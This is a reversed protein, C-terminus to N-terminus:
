TPKKMNKRADRKKNGEKRGPIGRNPIKGGSRKGKLDCFLLCTGYGVAGGLGNSFVDDLECYGTGTFDQILEILISLAIPVLLLAITPFIRYLIAGLPIFLWINKLIDARTKSNSIFIKYSWFLELNAGGEGSERFMLTMYSIAGIYVFLLIYNWKTDFFVALFVVILASVIVLWSENYLANKLNFVEKGAQNLYNTQGNERSIGYQGESLSYPNGELDFYLETAVSNDAQFTRRVTTYGKNTATPEGEADLYTLVAERGNEDYEKHIGYQGLSLSVPNGTEDFYFESEVKGNEPGETIYYNRTVIAYGQGTMMPAGAADIYTIRQIKGNEGYENIKGYGYLPTNVPNGKTDYYKVAVDQRNENYEREEIAYGNAMIMPEGNDGLYTTRINNGREDYDRLVAYYGNYRSVPEGKDDYYQELLSHETKTVIVTAYRLDAAITIKGEEDVYDTRETDGDRVTIKQLQSSHLSSRPKKSSPSIFLFSGVLFMALLVYYARGRMMKKDGVIGNM